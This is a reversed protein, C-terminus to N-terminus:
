LSIRGQEARRLWGTGSHLEALYEQETQGPTPIVTAHKGLAHLDMITSYGSRVFLSDAQCIVKAMEESDLHPALTLNGVIETGAAGPTGGLVLAKKGSAAFLESLERFLLSRHPEPGSAIGVLEFHWSNGKAAEERCPTFRSLPGIFRANSPMNPGHSLKGSLNTVGPYDPIWVENFRSMYRKLQGYLAARLVPPVVPFLQHTLLINKTKRHWLGYRNDAIVTDPKYQAVLSDLLHNEGAIHRLIGPLQFALHLFFPLSASYRIRLDPLV